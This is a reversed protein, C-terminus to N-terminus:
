YFKIFLICVLNIINDSSAGLRLKACPLVSASKALIVASYRFIARDRIIPKAIKNKTQFTNKYKKVSFSLVSAPLYTSNLTIPNKTIRDNQPITFINIFVRCSSLALGFESGGPKLKKLLPVPPFTGAFVAGLIVPGVDFGDLPVPAVNLGGLPDAGVPLLAPLPVPAM